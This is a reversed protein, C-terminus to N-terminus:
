QVLRQSGPEWARTIERQLRRLISRKAQKLGWVAVHSPDAAEPQYTVRLELKLFAEVRIELLGYGPWQQLIADPAVFDGFHMSLYEDDAPPM